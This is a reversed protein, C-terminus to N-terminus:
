GDLCATVCHTSAWIDNMKLQLNLDNEPNKKEGLSQALLRRSMQHLTFASSIWLILGQDKQYHHDSTQKKTHDVDPTSAVTPTKITM